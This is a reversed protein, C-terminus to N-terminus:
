FFISGVFCARGRHERAIGEGKQSGLRLHQVLLCGAQTVALSPCDLGVTNQPPHGM